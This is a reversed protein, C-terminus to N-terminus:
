DKPYDVAGELIVKGDSIVKYYGEGGPPIHFEVPYKTDEVIEITDYPVTDNNDLDGIFIQVQQPQGALTQDYPIPIEFKERKPLEEIGKSIVVNVKSGKKLQTGASPDQSIVEGKPVTDHFEETIEIKLGTSDEYNQLGKENLGRFDDLTILEPGLSVTFEITTEEPIVSEGDPPYQDLITGPESDNHEG